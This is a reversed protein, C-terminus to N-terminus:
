KNKPINPPNLSKPIFNCDKAGYISLLKLPLINSYRIIEIRVFPITTNPIPVIIVAMQM